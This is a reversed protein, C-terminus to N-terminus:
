WQWAILSVELSTEFLCFITLSSNPTLSHVCRSFLSFTSLCLLAVASSLLQSKQFLFLCPNFLSRPPLTSKKTEGGMSQQQHERSQQSVFLCPSLGASLPPSSNHCLLLPLSPPFVSCAPPPPQNLFTSSVPLFFVPAPAGQAQAAKKSRGLLWPEIMCGTYHLAISGWDM